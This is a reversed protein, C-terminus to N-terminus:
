FEQMEGVTREKEDLLEGNASARARILQGLLEEGRRYLADNVLYAVRLSYEEGPHLSRKMRLGEARFLKRQPTSQHEVLSGYAISTLVATPIELEVSWDDLRKRTTNKVTAIAEYDHHVSTSTPKKEHTLSLALDPVRAPGRKLVEAIRM